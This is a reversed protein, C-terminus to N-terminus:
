TGDPEEGNREHRLGGRAGGREAESLARRLVGV